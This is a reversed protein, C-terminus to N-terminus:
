HYFPAKKNFQPPHSLWGIFSATRGCEAKRKRGLLFLTANDFAVRKKYIETYCMGV